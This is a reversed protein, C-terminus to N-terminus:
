NLGPVNRHAVAVMAKINELPTLPSLSCGTMAIYANKGIDDVCKQFAEAVTEPSGMQIIRVPDVNGALVVKGGLIESAKKLDIKHDVSLIRVGSDRIVDLRNNINGCIHLMPLCNKSIVWEFAKQQYPLVLDVFISKSIMDGSSIPDAISVLDAGAAVIDENNAIFLELAFDLLARVSQKDQLCARMLNDPGFM